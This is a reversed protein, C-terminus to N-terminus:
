ASLHIPGVVEGIAGSTTWISTSTTLHLGTSSGMRVQLNRPSCMNQTLILYHRMVGPAM